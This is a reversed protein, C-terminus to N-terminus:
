GEDEQNRHGEAVNPMRPTFDIQPARPEPTPTVPLPRIKGSDGAEGAFPLPNCWIVKDRATRLSLVAEGMEREEKDWFYGACLRIEELGEFAEQGQTFFSMAALTPYTSIEGSQGHRKVRLRYRVGIWLERTPEKDHVHVETLQDLEGLLHRWLRDHIWNALGRETSDAVWLPNERRYKLLDGRAAQSARGMGTIVKDGLDELVQEFTPHSIM